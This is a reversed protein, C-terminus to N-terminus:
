ILNIAFYNDGCDVCKDEGKNASEENSPNDNSSDSLGTIFNRKRPIDWRM